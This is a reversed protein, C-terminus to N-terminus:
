PFPNEDLTKNEKVCRVLVLIGNVTRTYCAEDAGCQNCIPPRPGNPPWYGLRQCEDCTSGPGLWKDPCEAEMSDFCFGTAENCCAGSLPPPCPDKQCKGNCCKADLLLADTRTGTPALCQRTQQQLFPNFDTVCERDAPCCARVGDVVGCDIPHSEPCVNCDEDTACEPPPPKGCCDCDAPNTVTVLKGNKAALKGNKLLFKSM